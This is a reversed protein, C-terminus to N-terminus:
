TSEYKAVPSLLVITGLLSFMSIYLSLIYVVKCKERIILHWLVKDYCCLIRCTIAPKQILWCFKIEISLSQKENYALIGAYFLGPQISPGSASTEFHYKQHHNNNSNYYAKDCEKVIEACWVWLKLEDSRESPQYIFSQLCQYCCPMSLIANVISLNSKYPRHSILNCMLTLSNVETYRMLYTYATWAATWQTQHNAHRTYLFPMFYLLNVNDHSATSRTGWREKTDISNWWSFPNKWNSM